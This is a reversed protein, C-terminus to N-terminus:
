PSVGQAVHSIDTEPDNQEKQYQRKEVKDVAPRRRNRRPCDAIGVKDLRDVFAVHGRDCQVAFLDQEAALVAAVIHRDLWIVGFYCLKQDFGAYRQLHATLFFRAKGRHQHGEQREDNQDTDPDIEHVPHLAAPAAPGHTKALRLGLKQGFLVPAHCKVVDSPDVLGLFLQFLDDLKQAVRLLKRAQAALDRATRQQDARRAGALRQQRAGDRALRAHREKRDRSRIEDFHEHTDACAPHAVHELLGFLIRGADNEDVLDVGDSPMTAGTIATAVVLAFLRQVLQQDFHVPELDVLAHDDDGGRVAFVHQVRRQQPGPPEVPLDLHGVGVDLAAFLYQANVRARYRKPRVHVQADDRAARRPKSAGIQGIQHVFRRQRRRTDPPPEHDHFVKFAGLVLHHHPGLAPRHNQGGFLLFLGSVVLGAMRNHAHGQGFAVWDILSRDNRAALRKAHHDAQGLDVAQVPVLRLALLLQGHGHGALRGLNEFVTGTLHRVAGRAIDLLGATQRPGHHQAPPHGVLDAVDVILHRVLPIGAVARASKRDRGLGLLQDFLFHLPHDVLAIFRGM